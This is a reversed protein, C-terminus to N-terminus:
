FIYIINISMQWRLINCFYFRPIQHMYVQYIWLALRYYLLMWTASDNTITETQGSHLNNVGGCAPGYDNIYQREAEIVYRGTIIFVYM